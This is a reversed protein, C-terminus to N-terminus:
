RLWVQLAVLSHRNYVMVCFRGGRRLVRLIERAAREPCPTHHIVGWSYVLDFRGDAFELREADCRRLDSDLGELCLRRRTLAIAADTLDVGACRAGARVFRVHDTGAGVGVELVDKGRAEEFRAFRAIFPEREDRLRELMRYRVVEETEPVDRTGCPSAEWFRRVAEKRADARSLGRDHDQDASTMM